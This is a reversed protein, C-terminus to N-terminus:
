QLRTPLKIKPMAIVVRPRVRKQIMGIRFDAARDGIRWGFYFDPERLVQFRGEAGEFHLIRLALFHVFLVRMQIVLVLRQKQDRQRLQRGASVRHDPVGDRHVRVPRLARKSNVTLYYCWSCAHRRCPKMRCSGNM